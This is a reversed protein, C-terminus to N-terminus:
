RSSSACAARREPWWGRKEIWDLVYSAVTSDYEPMELEFHGVGRVVISEVSGPRAKGVYKNLTAESTFEDADGTILLKPKASTLFAGFHRGFAIAAFWGFTYGVCALGVVHENLPLVSGAQPSGASSGFLIISSEPWQHKAWDCVDGIQKVERAHNSLVGWVMSSSSMDFSLARIGSHAFEAAIGRTNYESGGLPAWPHVTVITLAAAQVVPEWAHVRLTGARTPVEHATPRAARRMAVFNQM